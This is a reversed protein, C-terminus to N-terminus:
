PNVGYKERYRVQAWNELREQKDWRKQSEDTLELAICGHESTPAGRYIYDFILQEDPASVPLQGINPVYQLGQEKPLFEWLKESPFYAMRLPQHVSPITIFEGHMPGGYFYAKVEVQDTM